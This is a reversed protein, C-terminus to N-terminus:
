GGGRALKSIIYAVTVSIPIFVLTSLLTNQVFFFSLVSFFILAGACALGTALACTGAVAIFQGGFFVMDFAGITQYQPYSAQIQTTLWVLFAIFIMLGFIFPTDTQGKMKPKKMKNAYFGKM